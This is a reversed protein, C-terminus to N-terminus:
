EQDKKDKDKDKVKVKDKVEDKYWNRLWDEAAEYEEKVEGLLREIKELAERHTLDVGADEDRLKGYHQIKECSVQVKQVGLAASSGKLFHGLSSLNEL